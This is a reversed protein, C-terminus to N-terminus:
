SYRPKRATKIEEELILWNSAVIEKLRSELNSSEIHKILGEGDSDIFGHEEAYVTKKKDDFKWFGEEVLWDILSATDDIGFDYYVPFSVTRLKGTLKNKKVKLTVNAGIDRDKGRVKKRIPEAKKMWIEHSEYFDLAKAGSRTEPNGFVQLSSRTQSIILLFSKTSEMKQCVKPFTVSTVIPKETRYGGKKPRLDELDGETTLGDFSDTIHIISTTKKPEEDKDKKKKKKPAGVDMLTLLNESWDQITYSRTGFDLRDMGKGFMSELDFFMAAETEDYVLAYNDLRPNRVAEAMMTLAMLSKGSSSGGILNCMTGLKYGGNPTDSLALNLLTSGTSILDKKDLKSEKPKAEKIEEKIQSVENGARILSRKKPKDVM